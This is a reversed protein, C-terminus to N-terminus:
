GLEFQYGEIMLFLRFTSLINHCFAWIQSIYRVFIGMLLTLNSAKTSLIHSKIKQFILSCQFDFEVVTSFIPM